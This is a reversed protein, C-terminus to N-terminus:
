YAPLLQARALRVPHQLMRLKQSSGSGLSMACRFGIDNTRMNPMLRFRYSAWLPSPSGSYSGGRLVKYRYKSQGTVPDKTNTPGKPNRKAAPNSYYRADYWDAVWEWVNGTMDLAGYPSKGKPHQGVKNIGKGCAEFNALKCNPKRNGWAYRRADVGRAAKEWEAETPLRKGLSTCYKNANAWDVGVVPYRPHVKIQVKKVTKKKGKKKSKSSSKKARQHLIAYHPKACRGARVCRTFSEFTVENRDILFEDLYVFHPPEEDRDGIYSGMKFMGASVCVMEPRSSTCQGAKPGGRSPPSGFIMVGWLVLGAGVMIWPKTRSM